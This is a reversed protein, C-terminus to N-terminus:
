GFPKVDWDPRETVGRAELPHLGLLVIGRHASERLGTYDGIWIEDFGSAKFDEPPIALALHCLPGFDAECSVLVLINSETKYGKIKQSKQLILRGLEDLADGVDM